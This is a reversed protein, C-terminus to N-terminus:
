VAAEIEGRLPRCIEEALDFFEQARAATDNPSLYTLVSNGEVKESKVMGGARIASNLNAVLFHMALNAEAFELDAKVDQDTAGYM